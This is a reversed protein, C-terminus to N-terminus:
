IEPDYIEYKTPIPFLKEMSIKMKMFAIKSYDNNNGTNICFFPSIINELFQIQEM